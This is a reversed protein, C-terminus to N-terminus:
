SDARAGVRRNGKETHLLIRMMLVSGESTAVAYVLGSTLLLLPRHQWQIIFITLPINCLWYVFNSTLAAYRHYGPNGSARSRSSWAFAMNQVFCLAGFAAFTLILSVM